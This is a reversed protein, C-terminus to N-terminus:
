FASFRPYQAFLQKNASNLKKAEKESCGTFSAFSLLSLESPESSLSSSSSFGDLVGWFLTLMDSHIQMHSNSLENQKIKHNGPTIYKGRTFCALSTSITSALEDPFFATNLPDEWKM